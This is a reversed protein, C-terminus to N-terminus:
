EYEVIVDIDQFEMADIFNQLIEKQKEQSIPTGDDWKSFSIPNVIERLRRNPAYDSEVAVSICKGMERYEITFRAVSQVIFGKSSKVGQKNLWTFM